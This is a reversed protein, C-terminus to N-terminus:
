SFAITEMETAVQAVEKWPAETHWRATWDKFEHSPMPRAIGYGQALHCGISLLAAGHAKTEVGEAIVKRGFARALQVVAQVIGRDDDDTLMDRVFSQDIKLEDVPLRRLYSLSSYGTGFDDLSFHVGLQKCCEVLAVAQDMDNLAATELVELEFNAPPLNPHRQLALKLQECFDPHLLHHASINVSVRLNLGQLYWQEAQTLAAEIVWQGIPQELSSGNIHDIFAAPSLVGKEPHAWRILAEAGVVRGNLLDVKPQYYLVFEGAQLANQLVHLMKSHQQARRDSDSDFLHYRNRGSEKAIYMAKDAHRLLSDTDAEDQPYLTVGLSATVSVSIGAQPLDVPTAVALLMRDLAQSCAEPSEMNALLLVFEDGGVRALIDEARLEQALNRTVGVLLADGAAHGYQDNIGKFGDLDLFCVALMRKNSVDSRLAQELRDVLLRRNPLGTLPDYHAIRNLQEDHEKYKSIDTFSGVYNQVSGDPGRVASISLFESYLEGNKRRNCIEGRWFGQDHIATWMSRFFAADHQGSSLMHPQQGLVEEAAYGTIRCFAPNVKVIRKQPNVVLIGEQSGEFVTTAIQQAIEAKKRETIDRSIGFLGRVQGQKDVVPGKTVHFVHEQGDPFPLSEEHTQTMARQMIARDSAMLEQANPSPFLHTDDKDLIDRPAMKMMRAGAGNILLYRGQLDKVFVVDSTGSVVANLLEENEHAKIQARRRLESLFSVVVGNLVLLALALADRGDMTRLGHPVPDVITSGVAAVATALLGPLLGGLLASLIVPLVLLILLPHDTSGVSQRVLLMTLPLGVALFYNTVNPGKIPGHSHAVHSLVSGGNATPLTSVIRLAIRLMATTALVFFMGKVTSLWVMSHVDILNSLLKDSLFIWAMALVFYGATSYLIFRARPSDPM